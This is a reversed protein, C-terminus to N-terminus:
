KKSLLECVLSSLETPNKVPLGEILRAEDYLIKTYKKLTDKDNQYLDKIKQAIPHNENIELVLKADVHEDTPMANIVKQMEVTINGESTLCLPHNKLKNTFRISSVEEGLEKKMLDFMEKSDENKKKLEEKEEESSLDFDNSSVNVFKKDDYKDLMKLVFEDVYDTLYLVEKKREKLSEVQPMMDIKDTTEGCAYYITDDDKKMRSVYEKLTAMKKEKSSYFIILDKLDDKKAGYNDYVGYKINVGFTKFFKEYKDRENELMDNLEKLIKKEINKAILKLQKSQQLIERSINLSLDPSDVVGKVFSLYDPLLDECKDMILVGNSYLELGKKYEKTYFDYPPNSPIFLLADYSVLGEAKTHIVKLPKAYDFFKEQYFNDYDEDKIKNKNKKWLPIMSNIPDSEKKEKKEEDYNFITIPYSVYDSYKKVLGMISFEELYKDFDDDKTKEKIHLTIKTGYTDKNSKTIEYGDAGESVWKYAEEAGAKKSEVIVKDAVMFSSYFGVGFQGIINVKDKKELAEKFALSGSKAITGLNECLEEKNMGIGNDEITLLRKEKDIDLVIRLEKKDVKLKKNTLSEYYLKDLADNANSILERLFIDKNTYISNVMLDLLKKSEAKFQRKSM